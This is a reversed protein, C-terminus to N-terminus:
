AEYHPILSLVKTAYLPDGGGNWALLAKGVDQGAEHMKKALHRCGFRLGVEIDNLETLYDGKFGCERAVAGMVQMLGWSAQQAWWEQDTDGRLTKFDSPPYKSLMEEKTPQRWPKDAKVDWFYHYKPEPNWAWPNWTSEKEIVAKVLKRDLGANDAAATALNSLTTSNFTM